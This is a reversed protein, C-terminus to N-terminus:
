SNDRMDPMADIRALYVMDMMQLLVYMPNSGGEGLMKM